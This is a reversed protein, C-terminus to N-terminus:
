KEIKKIKEYLQKLKKEREAKKLAQCCDLRGEKNKIQIIKM